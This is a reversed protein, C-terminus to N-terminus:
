PRPPPGKPRRGEGQTLVGDGNADMRTFLAEGM